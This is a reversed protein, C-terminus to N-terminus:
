VDETPAELWELDLTVSSFPDATFAPGGYASDKYGQLMINISQGRMTAPISRREATGVSVREAATNSGQLAGQSTNFADSRGQGFRVWVRAQTQTASGAKSIGDWRAVVNCASAWYPVEVTWTAPDPWLEGSTGTFNLADSSVLNISRVDRRRRPVAKERLDTIMAQTIAATAAPVALRALAIAPYNLALDTAKTTTAAVGTIVEFRATEVEDTPLTAPTAQGGPMNWDDVRAVILDYRTAGGANAPIDLLSEDGARVMYSENRAGPYRNILVGGGLGIRVTGSAVATQRVLFDGIGAVGEEGGTAQYALMHGLSSSTIGGDIAWAINELPM